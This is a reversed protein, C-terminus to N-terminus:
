DDITPRRKTGRDRFHRPIHPVRQNATAVCDPAGADRRRPVELEPTNTTRHERPVVWLDRVGPKNELTSTLYYSPMTTFYETSPPGSVPVHRTNRQRSYLLSAHHPHRYSKARYRYQLILYLLWRQGSTRARTPTNTGPGFGRRGSGHAPDKYGVCVGIGAKRIRLNLETRGRNETRCASTTLM